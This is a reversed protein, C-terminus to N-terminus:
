TRYACARSPMWNHVDLAPVATSEGEQVLPLLAFSFLPAFFYFPFFFSSPRSFLQHQLLGEEKKSTKKYAFTQFKIGIEKIKKNAQWFKRWTTNMTTHVFSRRYSYPRPFFRSHLMFWLWMSMKLVGEEGAIIIIETFRLLGDDM